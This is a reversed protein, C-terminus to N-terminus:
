KIESVTFKRDNRQRGSDSYDNEAARRVTHTLEDVTYTMYAPVYVDRERGGPFTSIFGKYDANAVGDDTFAFVKYIKNEPLSNYFSPLEKPLVTYSNRTNLFEYEKGDNNIIEEDAENLEVIELESAEIGDFEEVSKVSVNNPVDARNAFTRIVRIYENNEGDKSETVAIKFYRDLEVDELIVKYTDSLENSFISEGSYFDTVDIKVSDLISLDKLYAVEINMKSYYDVDSSIRVPFEEYMLPPEDELAETNWGGENIDGRTYSIFEDNNIDEIQYVVEEQTKDTNPDKNASIYMPLSGIIVSACIIGSLIKKAKM